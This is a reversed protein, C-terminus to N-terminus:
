QHAKSDKLIDLKECKFDVLECIYAAVPRLISKGRKLGLRNPLLGDLIRMLIDEDILCNPEVCFEPLGTDCLSGEGDETTTEISGYIFSAGIFSDGICDGIGQCYEKSDAIPIVSGSTISPPLADNTFIFFNFRNYRYTLRVEQGELIYVIALKCSASKENAVYDDRINWINLFEEFAGSPSCALNTTKGRSLDSFALAGSLYLEEGEFYFNDDEFLDLFRTHNFLNILKKRVSVPFKDSFSLFIDSEIWLGEAEEVSEIGRIESLDLTWNVAGNGFLSLLKGRLRPLKNQKVSIKCATAKKYETIISVHNISNPMYSYRDEKFATAALLKIEIEM